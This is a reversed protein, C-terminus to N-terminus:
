LEIKIKGVFLAHKGNQDVAVPKGDLNNVYELNKLYSHSHGGLVIDINRSNSIMEKDGTGDLEWGLHSLCVVLDCKEENKLKAAVENAVKAPDLYKVGVYNDKSVLGDLEPSLGFVGIKKGAREIIVYPKVVGEACTGSFDYNACVIPFDAMKFLRAMNELGYDFEHNGITAADYHMQNMLGVEVDGKFLTYYPSGQSFDGSDFLLLDPNQTRQEKIMNIRRLYGGRGALLTDALNENLPYVCSHSDNTHLITLEVTKPTEAVEAKPMGGEVTIRGEVKRSVVVGKKEMAKFYDMIIFRMNNSKDQPSNVKTKQKFAEMRDNGQALYDITAIRYNRNPNIEKGNLKVSVLKRERSIVMEVGHSVGEGGVSAIQEFLEMTQKGTLTLFCIKNEFPAVDLVNGYTVEGASLAARMGGMNYVSFDPKEKYSKAAWIMIDALLNSLNSEPRQAYMYEAVHGIVPSMISDVTKKYPAIFAEAERDTVRDFHKDVLIRSREIKIEQAGAIQVTLACALGLFIRKM